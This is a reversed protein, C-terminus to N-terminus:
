PNVPASGRGPNTAAATVVAPNEAPGSANITCGVTITQNYGVDPIVPTQCSGLATGSISGTM